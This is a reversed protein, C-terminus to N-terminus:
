GAGYKRMFANVGELMLRIRTKDNVEDWDGHAASNRIGAWNRVEETLELKLFRM